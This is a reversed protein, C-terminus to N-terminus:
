SFSLWVEDLGRWRPRELTDDSSSGTELGVGVGSGVSPTDASETGDDGVLCDTLSSSAVADVLTDDGVLLSCVVLAASDVVEVDM